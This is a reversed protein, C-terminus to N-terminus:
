GWMYPVTPLIVQLPKGVCETHNYFKVYFKIQHDECRDYNKEGALNDCATM